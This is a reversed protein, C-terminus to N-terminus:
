VPRNGPDRELEEFAHQIAAGLLIGLTSEMGTVVLQGTAVHHPTRPPVHAGIAPPGFACAKQSQCASGAIETRM